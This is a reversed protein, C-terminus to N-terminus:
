ERRFGSDLPAPAAAGCGVGSTGLRDQAGGFAGNGGLLGGFFGGGRLEGGGLASDVFFEFLVPVFRVGIARGDVGCM